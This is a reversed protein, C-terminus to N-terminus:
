WSIAPSSRSSAVVLGASNMGFKALLGAEVVTMFSPGDDPTSELLVVTDASFTALCRPSTHAVRCPGDSPDTGILSPSGAPLKM